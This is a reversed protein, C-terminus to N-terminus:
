VKLNNIAEAVQALESKDLNIIYNLLKYEEKRDTINLKKLITYFADKNIRSKDLIIEIKYIDDETINPM